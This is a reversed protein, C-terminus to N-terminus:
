PARVGCIAYVELSGAIPTTSSSSVRTRLGAAQWGQNDTTPRSEALTDGYTVPEFAAGGGALQEGPLCKVEGSFAAADAFAQAGTAKRVTMGTLAAPKRGQLAVLAAVANLRRELAAARKEAKKLRALTAYSPGSDAPQAAFLWGVALALVLAFAVPWRVPIRSLSHM